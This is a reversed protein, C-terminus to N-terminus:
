SFSASILSVGSSRKKSGDSWNLVLGLNPITVYTKGSSVGSGLFNTNASNSSLGLSGMFESRRYFGLGAPNIAISSFDAGVAGWAGGAGLVRASGILGTREYRLVDDENQAIVVGSCLMSLLGFVYPKMM